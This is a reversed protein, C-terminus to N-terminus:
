GRPSRPPSLEYKELLRYVHRRDIGAERAVASVNRNHKQLLHVLYDREFDAIISEKAEKLSVGEAPLPPPRVALPSPAAGQAESPLPPPGSKGEGSRPLPPPLTVGVGAEPVREQEESLLKLHPRLDEVSIEPGESFVVVRDIINRLERVNGPWRARLLLEEAASKCRFPLNERAAKSRAM